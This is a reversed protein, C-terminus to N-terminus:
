LHLFHLLRVLLMCVNIHGGYSAWMLATHGANDRDNIHAGVSSYSLGSISWFISIMGRLLLLHVVQAHGQQAAHHLPTCGRADVADVQAGHKLLMDVITVDGPDSLFVLWFLM